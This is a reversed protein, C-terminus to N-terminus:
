VLRNNLVSWVIRERMAPVDSQKFSLPKNNSLFAAFLCIFPGCSCGDSQAPAKKPLLRWESRDFHVNKAGHEQELWDLVQKRAENGQRNFSDLSLVRKREMEVVILIWHQNGLNVPVYIQEAGLTDVNRTWRQVLTYRKAASATVFTPDHTQGARLPGSVTFTPYFYTSFFVCNASSPNDDSRLLGFYSNIVVDKFWM